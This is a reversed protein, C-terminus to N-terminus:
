LRRGHAHKHQPIGLLQRNKEFLPGCNRRFFLNSFILFCSSNMLPELAEFSLTKEIISKLARKTKSKIGSEDETEDDDLAQYTKLLYFIM